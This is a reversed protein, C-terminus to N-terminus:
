NAFYVRSLGYNRVDFIKIKDTIEMKDKKHRHIIIIGGANLIKNEIIKEILENIKKEKFPPDLFIFDFKKNIKQYSNFFEFCDNKFIKFNKENKLLSLNKELIKIAEFYNEFFYVIKSGRSLCEIGFSGSGSFLDLISSDELKKNIKKSHDLMNFISVKVLDKLPRTNKDKPLFLKKGKYKGSIIRM